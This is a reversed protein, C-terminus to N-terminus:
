GPGAQGEGTRESPSDKASLRVRLRLVSAVAWLTTGLLLFTPGLAGVGSLYLGTKNTWGLGVTCGPWSAVVPEYSWCLAMVNFAHVLGGVILLGGLLM